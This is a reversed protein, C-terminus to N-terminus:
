VAEGWEPRIEPQAGPAARAEQEFRDLLTPQTPVREDAAARPDHIDVLRLGAPERDDAVEAVVVDRSELRGHWEGVLTAGQGHATEDHGLREHAEVVSEPHRLHQAAVRAGDPLQEIPRLGRGVGRRSGERSAYSRETTCAFSCM